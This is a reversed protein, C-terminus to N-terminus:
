ESEIILEGNNYYDDCTGSYWELGGHTDAMNGLKEVCEQETCGVATTKYGDNFKGDVSYPYLFKM